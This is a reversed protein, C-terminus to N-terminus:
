KEDYVKLARGSPDDTQDSWKPLWMPIDLKYTPFLDNFIKKYYDKEITVGALTFATFAFPSKYWPETKLGTIGDSFGDKRRWAVNEPLFDEFAKRLIYKEIKRAESEGERGETTFIPRSSRECSDRIRPVKYSSSLKMVYDVLDKDLFPERLDLGNSSICRDARLADYEHMDYLLRLTELNAIDASPANHFYLYGGFLEDAGEGSFIVTDDTNEKIYKCLYYMGMSARITTIDYTELTKIVTSLLNIFVHGSENSCSDPIIVETHKTQLFDAVIRAYKLDVSDKFGVSYTRVNEKGLFRVLISTIISSDLGGSLLCGINRESPLRKKVANIVLDQIKRLIESESNMIEGPSYSFRFVHEITTSPGNMLSFSKKEHRFVIGPHVQRVNDCFSLLGSVNSALAPHKGSRTIGVFLPRVGIRDRTYYTVKGHTLIIAFVGDLQKVTETFGIKEYLRLIVECDSKSKCVLDYKEKLEKHNYIEGNCMFTIKEEKEQVGQLRSGSAFPSFSIMPQNGLTSLDNIALRCFRYFGNKNMIVTSSDPGRKQISETESFAKQLDLHTGDSYEDYLIAQIGCMKNNIKEQLENRLSIFNKKCYNKKSTISRHDYSRLSTSM